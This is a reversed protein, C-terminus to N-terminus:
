MGVGTSPPPAGGLRRERALRRVSLFTNRVKWRAKWWKGSAMAKRIKCFVSRM